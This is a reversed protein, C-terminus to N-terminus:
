GKKLKRAVERLHKKATSNNHEYKLAQKYYNYATKYHIIHFQYIVGLMAYAEAYYYKPTYKDKKTVAQKLYKIAQNYDKEKYANIGAEYIDKMKLVGHVVQPAAEETQDAKEAASESVTQDAQEEEASEAAESDKSDSEKNQEPEATPVPTPEAPAAKTPESVPKSPAVTAKVAPVPTAKTSVPTATPKNSAEDLDIEVEAFVRSLPALGVALMGALFITMGVQKMQGHKM